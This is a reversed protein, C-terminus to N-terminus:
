TSCWLGSVDNGNILITAGDKTIFSVTAQDEFLKGAVENIFPIEDVDGKTACNLPPVFYM